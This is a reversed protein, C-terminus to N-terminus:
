EARRAIGRVYASRSGRLQELAADGKASRSPAGLLVAAINALVRTGPDRLCHELGEAAMEGGEEAAVLSALGAAASARVGPDDDNALTVLVGAGEPRGLRRAVQAAWRRHYADGALLHVLSGSVSTDEWTGLAAALDTAAGVADTERDFPSAIVPASPDAIALAIPKLDARVEEPLRDALSALVQLAGRKDGAGVAEDRLLRLLADWDASGPHWADILALVRGVDWGGFGQSGSHADAVIRDAQKALSAVAGVVVDVPLDRVDGLAALMDLSGAKAEDLLLTRIGPDRDASIELLATRLVPNHADARGAVGTRNEDSWAHKPLARVVRAWSTAVVQDQQDPVSVLCGIVADHATSSTAPIVAALTDLLRTALLYSPTTRTIFATPDEIVSLLWTATETATTEDLLDGGREFLTLGTPATTRTAADLKVYTCALTVAASPGDAALREVALRLAKEDGALRLTNLGRSAEEPEAHRDLRMLTDKGLLAFSSCWASHDSVNGAILAAAVLQNNVVDEAGRTTPIDSAWARFTRDVLPFLALSTTQTQWWAAATDAAIVVQEIDHQGLSSTNFLLIAAVGAIASATVDGPAAFRIAQISIAEDRAMKLSGIEAAARARQAALWAQDVPAADDRSLAAELLAVAEDAREDELLAAAATVTAAASTPPDPADAVVQLLKDIIGTTVRDGLAGVFRWSWESSQSAENLSPVSSHADAFREFDRIRAQALLAIAQPPTLPAGHGANPHPAVLRPVVLAHRMLDRPALSALGTWLSGEFEIRPRPTAAVELLADLHAEDITNARPVMLKAGKGTSQVAEATVHAWYSIRTDLDHLVILHPLIHAVWADIHERNRDRFWWGCVERNDDHAPERFWSRGAKVQVGAVNGLEFGRADRALVFLDTGLDHFPNPAVGWGIRQFAATVESAGAGGTQEQESARM